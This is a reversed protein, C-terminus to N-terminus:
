KVFLSWLLHKVPNLVTEPSIDDIISLHEYMDSYQTELNLYINGYWSGTLIIDLLILWKTERLNLKMCFIKFGKRFALEDLPFNLLFFCSKNARTWTDQEVRQETVMLLVLPFCVIFKSNVQWLFIENMLLWHFSCRM